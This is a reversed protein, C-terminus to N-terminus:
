RLSHTDDLSVSTDIEALARMVVISEANARRPRAVSAIPVAIV